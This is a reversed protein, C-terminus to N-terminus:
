RNTINTYYIQKTLLDQLKDSDVVVKAYKEEVMKLYKQVKSPIPDPKIIEAELSNMARSVHTLHATKQTKIKAAM